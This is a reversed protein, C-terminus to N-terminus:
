QAAGEQEDDAAVDELILRGLAEAQEAWRDARECRRTTEEDLGSEFRENAKGRLYSAILLLDQGASRFEGDMVNCEGDPGYQSTEFIWAQLMEGLQVLAALHEPRELRWAFTRRFFHDREEFDSSDTQNSM